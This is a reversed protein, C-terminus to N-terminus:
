IASKNELDLLMYCILTIYSEYSAVGLSLQFSLHPYALYIYKINEPKHSLLFVWYNSHYILEGGFFVWFSVSLVM